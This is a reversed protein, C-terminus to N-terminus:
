LYVERKEDSAKYIAKILQLSKLAEEGTVLPQRNDLIAQVFDEFQRVHSSEDVKPSTNLEVAKKPNLISEFENWKGDEFHYFMLHDNRIIVSGKEGFVSLEAYLGPYALTTGEITGITGNEFEINAVGLDETEIQKHLLTRCKGSVSKVDGFLHVLLDIYHISQNILAGGGDFEWTGRWSNGYYEESRYFINKASGGLVKGLKGEEIAKKLYIIPEDFRHQFIIGLKVNNERCAEIMAQGKEVTTDMPKECMVHKGAKAAEIAAESHIGSPLCITVADIEPNVLMDKYDSYYGCGMGEAYDEYKNNRGSIAVIEANPLKNIIRSHVKGISGCGILGFRVKEM